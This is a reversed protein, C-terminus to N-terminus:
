VFISSEVKIQKKINQKKNFMIKLNKIKLIEILLWYFSDLGYEISLSSAGGFRPNIEIFVVKNKIIFAQINIHGFFKFKILERKIKSEIIKDKFISSIKSEGFKILNRERMVMGILSKQKNYYADISIEKGKIYEQCIPNDLHKLFKISNKYTLNIGINKSSSGYREKIVYKKIKNESIAELTKITPIKNKKCFQFFKLKDLCIKIISYDSVSVFINRKKFYNKNKSWFLLESDRTPIIIKINKEKCYKLIKEKNTIEIKPMKWFNYGYYKSPVSNNSDGLIININYNIKNVADKLCKVLLYKSSSSTVLINVSDLINNKKNIYSHIFSSIYQNKFYQQKLIGENKFGIKEITKILKIRNEFTETYIKNLQLENFAIKFILSIFSIFCNHFNTTNEKIKSDLLFSIESRKHDWSIYVMGGYGILKNKNYIAFLINKPKLSNFEPYIINHYYETQESSHIKKQQRLINIQENRWKRIKEMHSLSITRLFLNKENYTSKKLIKYKNNKM